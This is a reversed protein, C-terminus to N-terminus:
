EFPDDTGYISMQIMDLFMQGEDFENLDVGRFQEINQKIREDIRTEEHNEFYEILQNM